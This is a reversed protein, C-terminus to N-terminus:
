LELLDYRSANPAPCASRPYWRGPAAAPSGSAGLTRASAAGQQAGGCARDRAATWGPASLDRCRSGANEDTLAFEPDIQGVREVFLRVASNGSLLDATASETRDPWPLPSVPIEREGGLRLRERSTALIVLGPCAQLLEAVLSAATLVHEFNDLVLLFDADGLATAVRDALPRDGADGIGLARAVTSGVLGADRVPALSVFVVRAAFEATVGAAAELALRTKGVGGPGTLTVLSVDQRRLLARVAAVDRERGILPTRPVRLDPSRTFPPSAGM